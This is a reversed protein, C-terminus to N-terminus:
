GARVARFLGVFVQPDIDRAGLHTKYELPMGLDLFDFGREELWRAMLILQVTGANDEEYYGTYSTYVRGMVIGIEGARIKGERYVSFSFPKPFLKNQHPERNATHVASEATRYMNKLVTVLPPTLWESGHTKVCTDLVFDFDTNVRLEYRSLFRRISKRIHLEPFFLVSRILHLKPLPIFFAEEQIGANDGEAKKEGTTNLETSMVLFGSGMIRGIFNEDFDRAICFEKDYGTALLVDVVKDCDDKPDIFAYGSPLYRVTYPAM